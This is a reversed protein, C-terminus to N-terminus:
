FSWVLDVFFRTVNNDKRPFGAFDFFSLQLLLNSQLRYNVGVEYGRYATGAGLDSDAFTALTADADVNRYTYWLNFPAVKGKGGGRLGVSISYGKDDEDVSTNNVYDGVVFVEPELTALGVGGLWAPPIAVYGQATVNIFTFNEELFGEAALAPTGPPFVTGRDVRNNTRQLGPRLLFASTGQSVFGGLGPNFSPARLGANLRNYDYIAFAVTIPDVRVKLQNAILYTDGTLGSFRENTVENLIFYGFTNEIQLLPLGLPIPLKFVIGEPNVDDDWVLESRWTGRDGRWFPLPMKGFTLSLDDWGKLTESPDGFFRLPRAILYAQDLNFSRSVFAEGLRIFPSTPNPNEGTSIRVGGGVAGQLNYDALLRVRTRFGEIENDELLLDTQDEVETRDYRFTVSAGLRFPLRAPEKKLAELDQRIKALDQEMQRIRDADSQAWGPGIQLFIMLVVVVVAVFLRM